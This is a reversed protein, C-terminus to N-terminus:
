QTLEKRKCRGLSKCVGDNLYKCKLEPNKCTATKGRNTLFNNFMKILNNAYPGQNTIIEIRVKLEEQEAETLQKM